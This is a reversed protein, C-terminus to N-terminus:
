GRDPSRRCGSSVRGPRASQRQPPKYEQRRNRRRTQRRASRTQASGRAATGQQREGIAREGVAQRRPYRGHHRDQKFTTMEWSTGSRWQEIARRGASSQGKFQHRDNETQAGRHTHNSTKAVPSEPTTQHAPRCRDSTRHRRRRYWASPLAWCWALGELMAAPGPRISTRIKDTPTKTSFTASRLLDRRWGDNGHRGRDGGVGCNSVSGAVDAGFRKGCARCRAVGVCVLDGTDVGGSGGSGGSGSAALAGLSVFTHTHTHTHTHTQTHIPLM